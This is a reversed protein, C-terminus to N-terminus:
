TRGAAARAPLASCAGTHGDGGQIYGIIWDIGDGDEDVEQTVCVVQGRALRLDVDEAFDDEQGEQPYAHDVGVLCLTVARGAAAEAATAEAAAAETAAAETAAKAFAPRVQESDISPVLILQLATRKEKM